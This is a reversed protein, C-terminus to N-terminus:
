WIEKAASPQQSAVADLKNLGKGHLAADAAAPCGQYGLTNASLRESLPHTGARIQTPMQGEMELMLNRMEFHKVPQEPSKVNLLQDCPYGELGVPLVCSFDTKKELPQGRPL